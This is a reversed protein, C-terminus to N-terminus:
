RVAVGDLRSFADSWTPRGESGKMTWHVSASSALEPGLDRMLAGHDGSRAFAAVAEESEWLSITRYQKRLPRALTAVGLCGPAEVIQRTAKQAGVFLRGTSRRSRPTVDTAVAVYERDPDLDQLKKWPTKM